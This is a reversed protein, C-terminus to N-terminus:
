NLALLASSTRDTSAEEVNMVGNFLIVNSLFSINNGINIGGTIPEDYTDGGFFRIPRVLSKDLKDKAHPFPLLSATHPCGKVYPKSLPRTM